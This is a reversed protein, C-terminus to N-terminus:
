CMIFSRLKAKLKKEMSLIYSAEYIDVLSLLSLRMQFNRKKVERTELAKIGLSFNRFNRLHTEVECTDIFLIIFM